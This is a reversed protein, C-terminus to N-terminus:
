KAPLENLWATAIARAAAIAERGARYCLKWQAPKEEYKSEVFKMKGDRQELKAAFDVEGSTALFERLRRAVLVNPNEPYEERWKALDKRYQEQAEKASAAAGENMMKQTAPDSMTAMMQKITEEMEKRQDPPLSALAKKMEEIGKRADDAGGAASSPPEPKYNERAEGYLRKFEASSVFAKLWTALGSVITKQVAPSANRFAKGADSGPNFYGNNIASIAAEKATQETAGLQSLANQAAPVAVVVAALLAAAAVPRISRRFM